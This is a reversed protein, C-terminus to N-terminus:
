LMSGTSMDWASAKVFEYKEVNWNSLFEAGGFTEWSVGLHSVGSIGLAPNSGVIREPFTSFENHLSHVCWFVPCSPIISWWCCSMVEFMKPLWIRLDSSRLTWKVIALSCTKDQDGRWPCIPCPSWLCYSVPKLSRNAQAVSKRKGQQNLGQKVQCKVAKTVGAYNRARGRWQLTWNCRWSIQLNHAYM